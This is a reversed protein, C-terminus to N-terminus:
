SFCIRKLQNNELECAHTDNWLNDLKSWFDHGQPTDAWCFSNDIIGYPSNRAFYREVFKKEGSLDLTLNAYYEDRINHSELFEHFADLINKIQSCRLKTIFDDCTGYLRGCEKPIVFEGKNNIHPVNLADHVASDYVEIYESKVFRLWLRLLEKASIKQNNIIIEKM